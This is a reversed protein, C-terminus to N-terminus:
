ASTGAIPRENNRSTALVEQLDYQREHDWPQEWGALALLANLLSGTFGWVVYGDIWFAPGQWGGHTVTFRRRPDILAGLPVIGVADAEDPSTVGVAGPAHWYALVPHVPYGSARIRVEPLTVLPTVERRNLGVEEWAERLACDTPDRDGPDIRGGPLAIQGSHTRM